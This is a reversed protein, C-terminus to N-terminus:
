RAATALLEEEDAGGSLMGDLFEELDGVPTDKRSVASASTVTHRSDDLKAFLLDLTQLVSTSQRSDVAKSERSQKETSLDAGAPEQAAMDVVQWWATAPVDSDASHEGEGEGSNLYNIVLLADLPSIDDDDSVDLYPPPAHSTVPSTANGPYGNLYNIVVLADLPSVDGSDNVDLPDSLNHLRPDGIMLEWCSADKGTNGVTDVALASVEYLGDSLPPQITDNPLTWTGDANNVATYANGVVTIQIIAAPDDVNGSLPPQRDVTRIRDVAVRPPTSDFGFEELGQTNTNGALDAVQGANFTIRTVGEELKGAYYYRVFGDDRQEVRIIGLPINRSQITVDKSNVTSDDIGTSWKGPDLWQVEVYGLDQNTVADPTPHILNAMPPTIDVPAFPNLGRQAFFYWASTGVHLRDDIAVDKFAPDVLGSSSSAVLGSGDGHPHMDRAKNLMTIAAAYKTQEGLALYLVAAHATGEFWVPGSKSGSSFTFGSYAGDTTRLHTEAWLLPAAWNIATAYETSDALTM